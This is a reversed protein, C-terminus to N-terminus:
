FEKDQIQFCTLGLERWKRCVSPRDDVCFSVRFYPQIYRTYIEEKLETDDRYDGFPRMLLWDYPIDFKKLWSETDNRWKEERGSVLLITYGACRMAMIMDYVAVNPTDTSIDKFFGNWDKQDKDKVYQLRHDINVLTGDLDVIIAKRNVPILNFYEERLDYGFDHAMRLIVSRPVKRERMENRHICETLNTRCHIVNVDYEASKAWQIYKQYSHEYIHTNDIIFDARTNIFSCILDDQLSRIYKENRNPFAARLEDLNVYKQQMAKRYTSKGSGPIGRLITM